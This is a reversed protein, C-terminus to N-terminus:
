PCTGAILQLVGNGSKSLSGSNCYTLFATPKTLGYYIEVKPTLGPGISSNYLYAHALGVYHATSSTESVLLNNPDSLILTKSTSGSVTFRNNNSTHAFGEFSLVSGAKIANGLVFSGSTQAVTNATSSVAVPYSNFTRAGNQIRMLLSGYCGGSYCLFKNSEVVLGQQARYFFAWGGALEFTNHHVTQPVVQGQGSNIDNDGTHIALGTYGNAVSIQHYYNHDVETYFADRLRTGRNNSAWVDNYQVHNHIAGDLLIPRCSDGKYLSAPECTLYNNHIYNPYTGNTGRGYVVLMQTANAPGTGGVDGRIHHYEVPTTESYVGAYERPCSTGVPVSQFTMNYVDIAAETWGGSPPPIEGDFQIYKACAMGNHGYIHHLRIQDGGGSTYTGGNNSAQLCAYAWHTVGHVYFTTPYGTLTCSVEGGFLHWGKPGANSYVLGTVKHNNLNIDVYRTLIIASSASGCNLDSPLYYKRHSEWTGETLEESCSTIAHCEGPVSGGCWATLSTAGGEGVYPSSGNAGCTLNTTPSGNSDTGCGTPLTTSAIASLSFRLSGLLSTNSPQTLNFHKQGFLQSSALSGIVCLALFTLKFKQM